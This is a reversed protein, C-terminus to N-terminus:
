RGRGAREVFRVFDRTLATEIKRSAMREIRPAYHRILTGRVEAAMHARSGEGSFRLGGSFASLSPSEVLGFRLSHVEHDVVVDVTARKEVGLIEIVVEVRLPTDASGPAILNVQELDRAWERWRSADAAAALCAAPSAKITAECACEISL